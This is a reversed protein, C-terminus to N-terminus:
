TKFSLDSLLFTVKIEDLPARKKALLSTNLEQRNPDISPKLTKEFNDQISDIKVLLRV